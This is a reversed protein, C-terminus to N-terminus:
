AFLLNAVLAARRALEQHFRQACTAPRLLLPRRVVCGCIARAGDACNQPSGPSQPDLSQFSRQVERYLAVADATATVRGSKRDFLPLAIEAELNRILRSV